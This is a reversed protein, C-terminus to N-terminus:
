STFTRSTAFVKTSNVDKEMPKWLGCTLIGLQEAFARRYDDNFHFYIFYNAAMGLNILWGLNMHFFYADSPTVVEHTSGYGVTFAGVFLWGIVLTLMVFSLSKILRKSASGIAKEKVVFWLWAYVILTVFYIVAQASHWYTHAKGVFIEAVMAVVQREDVVEIYCYYLIWLSYATPPVMTFFLYLTKNTQNYTTPLLVCILRDIGISLVLFAGFCINFASVAFIHFCFDMRRFPNGSLYFYAFIIHASQHFVDSLATAAIILNCTSRLRSKRVTAWVINSNGFIGIAALGITLAVGPLVSWKYPDLKDM